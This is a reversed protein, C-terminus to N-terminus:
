LRKTRRSSDEAARPRSTLRRREDGNDSAPWFISDRRVSIVMPEITAMAAMFATACWVEGGTPMANDPIKPLMLKTAQIHTM